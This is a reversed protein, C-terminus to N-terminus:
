TSMREARRRRRSANKRARRAPDANQAAAHFRAKEKKCAWKKAPRVGASVNCLYHSFSINELDFFMKIPDDSLQWSVVHEISMEDETEIISGCRHCRDLGCRQILSFMIAKRLRHSATGLPM